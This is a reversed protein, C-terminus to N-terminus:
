FKNGRIAQVLSASLIDVKIKLDEDVLDIAVASVRHM